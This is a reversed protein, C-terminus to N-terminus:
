FGKYQISFSHIVSFDAIRFAYDIFIRGKIHTGFGARIGKFFTDKKYRYGFRLSFNKFLNISTGFLVGLNDRLPYSIDLSILFKKFRHFGGILIEFPLSFEREGVSLKRGINKLCFSVAGRRIRYIAGIDVASGDYSADDIEERIFKVNGGLFVRKLVMRSYNLIGVRALYGFSGEEGSYLGSTDEKERKLNTGLYFYGFSINGFKFPFIGSLFEINLNDIYNLHNMGIIIRRQIATGAPNWYLAGIDNSISSFAAISTGRASPEIKLFSFATEGGSFLFSLLVFLIVM